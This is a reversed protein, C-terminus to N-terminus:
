LTKYGSQSFQDFIGVTWVDTTSLAAVAGLLNYDNSQTAANPTAMVHWQSDCSFSAEANADVSGIILASGLFSVIGFQIICRQLTKNMCRKRHFQNAGSTHHKAEQFTGGM